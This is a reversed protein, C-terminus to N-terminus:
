RTMRKFTYKSGSESIVSDIETVTSLECGSM